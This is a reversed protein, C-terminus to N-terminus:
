VQENINEVCRYPHLRPLQNEFWDILLWHTLLMFIEFSVSIKRLEDPREATVQPQQGREVVKLLCLVFRALHDSDTEHTKSEVSHEKKLVKLEGVLQRRCDFM